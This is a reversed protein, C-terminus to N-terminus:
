ILNPNSDGSFLFWVFILNRSGPRLIAKLPKEWVVVFIYIMIWKSWSWPCTLPFASLSLHPLGLVSGGHLQTRCGLLASAEWLKNTERGIWSFAPMLNLGLFVSVTTDSLDVVWSKAQGCTLSTLALSTQSQFFFDSVFIELFNGNPYSNTTLIPQPSITEWGQTKRWRNETKQSPSKNRFFICMM